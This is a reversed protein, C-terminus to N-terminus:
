IRVVGGVFLKNEKEENEDKTDLIKDGVQFVSELPAFFQNILLKRLVRQIFIFPNKTKEEELMFEHSRVVNNEFIHILPISQVNSYNGKKMLQSVEPIAKLIHENLAKDIIIKEMFGFRLICRYHGQLKTSGVLVREEHPVTPISLTRTSCFIVVAPLTEFNSILRRYLQPVTNPSVLSQQASDSYLFAVGDNTHLSSKGFRSNLEMGKEAAVSKLIKPLTIGFESIDDGDEDDASSPTLDRDRGLNLDVVEPAKRKFSPFIDGIRTRSALQQEVIKSRGYRWFSLFLFSIATMMLPFWAGHPVKKFNAVVMSIELPLFVLGFLVPVIFHFEYVYVMAVLILSTTVLFDLNIGLGYAATVNNSNKFGAATCCVGVLLLFNVVPIYVKGSYKASVHKVELRPFCDLNILQAVISFVGLILAQSAIITSVTALVFMVWYSWSNAGGPISYFFPSVLASPNEVIYAAQGLYCIMLCVFVVSIGIQTPLRGFHGLDAFMAETGTIALMAGSFADIGSGKLLEIAYYPSLARFIGHDHKIINYIGCIVLGVLWLAIIPAFAFSIKHSGLQQVVFLVIIIVESVALVDNFKTDAIQIGAVASLISTTPTLLGDSFVLSCGLFCGVLIFHSIFKIVKPHNKFQKASKQMSHRSLFSLNTEQRQLLELDSVEVSGPIVVGKPGINLHRAIKAYIAVQGGEGNNPGLVLVILTYKILVVFIFVYFVLSVAGYIDKKTPNDNPYKISNLVYLPSTGIDGYIAGLSTFSLIFVEKWSQKKNHFDNSESIQSEEDSLDIEHNSADEISSAYNITEETPLVKNNLVSM